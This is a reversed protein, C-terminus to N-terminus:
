SSKMEEWPVSHGSIEWPDAPRKKQAGPSLGGDRYDALLVLPNRNRFIPASLEWLRGDATRPIPDAGGFYLM